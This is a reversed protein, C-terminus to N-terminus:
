PRCLFRCLSCRARAKGSGEVLRLPRCLPRRLACRARAKGLGEVLRRSRCLLRRLVCRARAKGLGEVLLRSRCLLTLNAVFRVVGLAVTALFKERAAGLCVLDALALRMKM